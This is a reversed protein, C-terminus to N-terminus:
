EPKRFEVEGAFGPMLVAGYTGIGHAANMMATDGLPPHVLDIVLKDGDRRPKELVPHVYMTDTRFAVLIMHTAFNIPPKSLLPDDSDPAPQTKSIEKKPIMAVFREFGERDRIVRPPMAAPPGGPASMAVHIRGSWKKEISPAANTATDAASKEVEDKGTDAAPTTVNESPTSSKSCAAAPLLLLPFALLPIRTNLLPM